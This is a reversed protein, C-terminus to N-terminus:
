QHADISSKYPTKDITNDSMSEGSQVGFIGCTYFVLVTLVPGIWVTVAPRWGMWQFLTYILYLGFGAIVFNFKDIKHVMALKRGFLVVYVMMTMMTAAAAGM